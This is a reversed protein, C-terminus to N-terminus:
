TVLKAKISRELARENQWVIEGDNSCIFAPLLDQAYTKKIARIAVDTGTGASRAKWVFDLLFVFFVLSLAVLGLLVGREILGSAFYVGVLLLLPVILLVWRYFRVTTAPGLQKVIAENM